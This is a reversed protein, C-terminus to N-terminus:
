AAGLLGRRPKGKTAQALQILLRVFRLKDKGLHREFVKYKEDLKLGLRGHDFGDSTQYAHFYLALLKRFDEKLVRKARDANRQQDFVDEVKCKIRTELKDRNVGELDAFDFVFMTFGTTTITRVEEIM